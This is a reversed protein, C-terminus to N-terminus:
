SAYGSAICIVGSISVISFTLTGQGGGLSPECKKLSNKERHFTWQGAERSVGEEVAASWERDHRCAPSM